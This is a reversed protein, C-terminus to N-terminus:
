RVNRTAESEESRGLHRKGKGREKRGGGKEKGKERELADHGEDVEKDSEFCGVLGEPERTKWGAQRESRQRSPLVFGFGNVCVASTFSAATFIDNIAREERECCNKKKTKPCHLAIEPCPAVADAVHSENSAVNM